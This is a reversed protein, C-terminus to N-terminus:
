EVPFRDSIIVARARYGGDNTRVRWLGDLRELGLVDQYHTELGYSEAQRLMAQALDFGAMADVAPYNEVCETLSIQGGIVGKELLVTRRRARAAYLGAALGAPGGGVIVIDYDKDV